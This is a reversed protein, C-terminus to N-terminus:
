AKAKEFDKLLEVIEKEHGAGVVAVIKSDPESKMIQALMRAMYENRDTVLAKYLGPYRGRVKGMAFEIFRSSPVKSLDMNKVTRDAGVGFFGLFIDGALKLREGISIKSLRSMTINFPQDILAVRIKNERATEVATKMEEGPVAGIMRGLQRQLFGGIIFFMFGTFGMSTLMGLSFRQKERSLLAHLRPYDLEVAVVGPKEELITQRVKQVSDKAIHSTGIIIINGQKM